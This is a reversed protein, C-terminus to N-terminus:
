DADPVPRNPQRIQALLVHPPKTRLLRLPSEGLRPGPTRRPSILPIKEAHKEMEGRRRPLNASNLEGSSIVGPQLSLLEVMNRTKLPLQRVQRESSPNGVTADVTNM